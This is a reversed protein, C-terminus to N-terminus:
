MPGVPHANYNCSIKLLRIGSDIRPLLPPDLFKKHPALDDEKRGEGKRGKGERGKGEERRQGM